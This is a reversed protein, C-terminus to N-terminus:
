HADPVGASVFIGAHDSLTSWPAHHYVSANQVTLGRVYIRDLRLLPFQAPFTKVNRGNPDTAANVLNLDREFYGTAAEQWDNFDGAIVMPDHSPVNQHIFQAIRHLQKWRSRQFLGLHICICHLPSSYGMDVRCYLFGRQEFPNTSINTNLSSIIPFHSLLANGHHGAPYVANKGYAVDPWIEHALYEYQSTSPWLPVRKKKLEHEGIVEQLFVIDAGTSRLADRLQPLIFRTNFSTFGKHTNITFIRLDM